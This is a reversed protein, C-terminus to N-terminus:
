KNSVRAGASKPTLKPQAIGNMAAEIREGILESAARLPSTALHAYRATTAPQSHGLLAGIIPLSLGEGAGISAHSHRLDHLRLDQLGALARVAEWTTNVNVLHQGRRLGPLVHPNGAVRPLTALIARAPGNLQVVKFGTKSTPLTLLGHELDVHAWQLALVEGRRAGTFILLGIAALAMPSLTVPEATDPVTVPGRAAASMAAGLRQFEDGSLYRQRPQEPFREVHRAPNSGDVRMGWREALNMLKSILLLMRNAHVPTTRHRHHLATVDARTVDAVARSGLAPLIMKDLLGRYLKATTQKRKADVHERMFREALERVTPATRAASKTAMPDAGGDVLTLIRAAERRALEPTWPAGHKGITYRRVRRGHRYQAVYVRSGAETCKVGFRGEWLFAGPQLADVTRKSIKAM